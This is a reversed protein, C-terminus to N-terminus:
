TISRKINGVLKRLWGIQKLYYKVYFKTKHLVPWKTLFKKKFQVYDHFALSYNLDVDKNYPTAKSLNVNTSIAYTLESEMYVVNTLCKNFFMRAKDNNLLLLSIGKDIDKIEPHYKEVGWYDALTIDGVREKRSFKCQYCVDRMIAGGIFANFYANMHHDYNLMSKKENRKIHCSSSCSWGNIKKDRFSYDIVIAKREKELHNIVTSFIKQSPTGHCILDSTLLNEYEKRLFLKLGALQCPTGTYYVWKGSKLDEKTQQFTDNIDSQLYKSGRLRFLDKKDAIRIHSLKMGEDFAAGYVLGGQNIVFEAIVSFIGGSSSNKLTDRNLNQAAYVAAESKNLTKETNLIPCVKICSGCETCTASDVMPYLFGKEDESMRIAKHACIQECARCGCCLSKNKVEIM